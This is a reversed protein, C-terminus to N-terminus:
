ALDDENETMFDLLKSKLPDSLLDRLERKYLTIPLRRIGNIQVCKKHSIKLEITRKGNKKKDKLSSNELELEKVKAQLEELTSM